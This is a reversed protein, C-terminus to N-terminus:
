PNARRSFHKQDAFEMFGNSASSCSGKSSNKKLSRLIQLQEVNDTLDRSTLGKHIHQYGALDCFEDIRSKVDHRLKKERKSISKLDIQSKVKEYSNIASEPIDVGLKQQAKM